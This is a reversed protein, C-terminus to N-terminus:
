FNFNVGPSWTVEYRPAFSLRPQLITQKKAMFHRKQSLIDCIKMVFKVCSQNGLFAGIIGLLVPPFNVFTAIMANVGTEPQAAAESQLSRSSHSESDPCHAASRHRWGTSFTPPLISSSALASAALAVAM